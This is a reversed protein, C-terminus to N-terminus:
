GAATVTHNTAGLMGVRGGRVVYQACFRGETSSAGGVAAVGNNTQRETAASSSMSDRRGGGGDLEAAPGVHCSSNGLVAHHMNLNSGVSGDAALVKNCSQQHSQGSAGGGMVVVMQGRRSASSAGAAQAQQELLARDTNRNNSNTGTIVQLIYLVYM